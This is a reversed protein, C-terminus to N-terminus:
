ELGWPRQWQRSMILQAGAGIPAHSVKVPVTSITGPPVSYMFEQGAMRLYVETDLSSNVQGSSSDPNTDVAVNEGAILAPMIIKRTADITAREFQDNGWSYDPLTWIIGATGQLMWKVWMESNTPNTIALNHTETGSVSTDTTAVFSAVVDDELWRPYAGVLHYLLLGYGESNPDNAAKLKPQSALRVNLWRRTGDHEVIIKSDKTYSFAKRFDSDALRFPIESTGKAHFALIFDFKDEVIGGFDAGTQYATANYITEVPSEYMGAFDTGDDESALAIGRDWQGYGAVTFLEGNWGEIQILTSLTIM